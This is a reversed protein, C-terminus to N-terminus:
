SSLIKSLEIVKAAEENTLTIKDIMNAIFDNQTSSTLSLKVGLTYTDRVTLAVQNNFSRLM